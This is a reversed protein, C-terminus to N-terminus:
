FRGGFSLVTSRGDHAIAPAVRMSAGTGREPFAFALSGVTGLLMGIGAYKLLRGDSKPGGDDFFHVVAFTLGGGFACVFPAALFPAGEGLTDIRTAGLYAGAAAGLAGLTLAAPGFRVGNTEDRGDIAAGIALLSLGGAIAGHFALPYRPDLGESHALFGAGFGVVVPLFNVALGVGEGPSSPTYEHILITGVIGLEAAAVGYSPGSLRKDEARALAPSALVGFVAALGALRGGM